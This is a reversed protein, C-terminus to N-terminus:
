GGVATRGAREAAFLGVIMGLLVAGRREHVDLRDLREALLAREDDGIGVAEQLLTVADLHEDCPRGAQVRCFDEIRDFARDLAAAIM